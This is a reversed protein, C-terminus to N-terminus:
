IATPRSTKVVRTALRSLVRRELNAICQEGDVAAPERGQRHHVVRGRRLRGLTAKVATKGTGFLDYAAGSALRCMAGTRSREQDRRVQTRCDSSGRASEARRGPQELFDARVGLNLTLRARTWQDQAYLGLNYNVREHFTIPEAFQTIRNPVGNFFTYNVGNNRDNGVVRWQQM